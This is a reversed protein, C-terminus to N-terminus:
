KFSILEEGMLDLNSSMISILNDASNHMNLPLIHYYIWMSDWRNNDYQWNESTLHSVCAQLLIPHTADDNTHSFWLTFNGLNARFCSRKRMVHQWSSFTTLSYSMETSVPAFCSPRSSIETAPEHIMKECSDKFAAMSVLFTKPKKVFINLQYGSQAHDVLTQKLLPLKIQDWLM